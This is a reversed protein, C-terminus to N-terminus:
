QLYQSTCQLDCLCLSNHDLPSPTNSDFFEFKNRSGSEIFFCRNFKSLIYLCDNEIIMYVTQKTSSVMLDQLNVPSGITGQFITFVKQIEDYTLKGQKIGETLTKIAAPSGAVALNNLCVDRLSFIYCKLLNRKM